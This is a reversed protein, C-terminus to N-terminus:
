ESVPRVSLGECRHGYYNRHANDSDFILRLPSYPYDTNLSSSWYFGSSRELLLLTGERYGAAPFFVSNGNTATVLRGKIGTGRYNTVWTWTCKNLLEEWEADTPIRWSGGLKAQVVDDEPDLVTNNDVTGYLSYTNYKSFPGSDSTGFKYTSWSFSSKTKTEGWAYYDGYVEPSNVFGSESLNCTAWYLKYGDITYLGLDVAGDPCHNSIIVKCQACVGSEDNAMAKIVAEGKTRATIKGNQDVTALSNNSSSWTYTKDNTNDPLLSTVSITEEAGVLLSLSTKNLAISIVYQKVEVECTANAGSGDKATATITATGRSTGTVKGSSSVKAVSSNSSTWSVSTNTASSPTVTASITETKGNYITISTKDLEISSVLRNVTVSCSGFKGSGDNAIAKITATGKSVATVKGDTNVTAVSENSSSWTYTKDNANDPLVSTVSITKEEKESISISTKNLTISTVYQKVEIMCTATRGQDKTTVTITATGNNKATVRGNADVTAVDENNSSWEVRKDTAEAPLVTATLSLTNGITHFTYETAGLSVSEVPVVETTFTKM